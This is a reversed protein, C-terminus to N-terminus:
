EVSTTASINNYTAGTIEHSELVAGYTTGEDYADVQVYVPTGPALPWSVRSYDPVYSADGVTLTITQGPNLPLLDASVGWFMGETGLDWWLQNVVTPATDPNVYAAVWFEDTVPADGQNEIVVQVDDSTATISQVVLDPAIVYDCHLLPLYVFYGETMMAFETLHNITVVVRTSCSEIVTIGDSSWGSGDWYSLSPRRLRSFYFTLTVPQTFTFGPQHDAVVYAELSFYLGAFYFGSPADHDSDPREDFVMTTSDPVSGPPFEITTSLFKSSQIHNDITITGGQAPDISDARDGEAVAVTVAASDTLSGDSVTYTFWDTGNFNLTPTYAVTVGDTSATGNAPAGVSAVSLTDGIDPDTDNALV